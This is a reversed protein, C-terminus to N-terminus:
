AKSSIWICTMVLAMVGTWGLHRSFYGPRYSQRVDPCRQAYSVGFLVMLEPCHLQQSEMDVQWWSEWKLGCYKLAFLGSRCSRGLHNEQSQESHAAVMSDPTLSLIPFALCCYCLNM